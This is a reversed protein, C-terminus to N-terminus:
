PLKKREATARQIANFLMKFTGYAQARHQPRFGFLVIRGRGWTVEVLAARGKLKDPQNLYGSALAEEKEDYRAVVRRDLDVRSPVSTALAPSNTFYVHSEPTMGWGLPHAADVAVRLISGPCSFEKDDKLTNRVPPGWEEIPLNCAADLCILTGGEEVFKRLAAVGEKGLGGQYEPPFTQPRDKEEKSRGERLFDASIAPLLLADFEKRLEGKKMRDNHISVYPFEFQELVLRTWGEDMSARWPQYLGLRVPRLAVAEAGGEVTRMPLGTILARAEPADEFVYAGPGWGDLALALRYVGKGERLRANAARAAVTAGAPVAVYKALPPQPELPPNGEIVAEADFSERVEVARIGMQLQITWGAVDYPKEKLPYRQREFLNQVYPRSPQALPIVVTGPPWTRGDAAFPEGAFRFRIAHARLAELLRAVAGPDNQEPPLLWAYPPERRGRNAQDVSMRWVSLLLEEKYRSAVELVAYSATLQQDVIDRLRWWGGKWPRPQVVGSDKSTAESSDVFLPTAIRCSASETLIGVRNHWWPTSDTAGPWYAEFMRRSQVGDRGSRELDLAMHTGFVNLWRHIMPHITANLPEAYPPVWLRAGTAGMQHHDVNVQPFWSRYHVDAVHRTEVLNLMYGDRNNDHGAYVHYLRPLPGGEWETGVYRDYWEQIMIQGDPNISPMLLLIADDLPLRGRALEYALEPAMQASATETSHINCTIFVIARGERALRRAEAEPLGGSFLSRSIEAYRRGNRLNEPTSIAALVFPLGLTSRGVEFLQLRDSAADLKELYQVVRTYPVLKRDEGLRHGFFREPTPLEQPLLLLAALAANM